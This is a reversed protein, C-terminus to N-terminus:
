KKKNYMGVLMGGLMGFLIGYTIAIAGFKNTFASGIAVWFM